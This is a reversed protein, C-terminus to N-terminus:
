KKVLNQLINEIILKYPMKIEDLKNIVDSADFKQMKLMIYGCYFIISVISISLIGIAFGSVIFSFDISDKVLQLHLQFSFIGISSQNWNNIMSHVAFLALLLFNIFILTGSLYKSWFPLFFRSFNNIEVKSEIENEPITQTFTQDEDHIHFEPSYASFILTILMGCSFIIVELIFYYDGYLEIAPRYNKLDQVWAFILFMQLLACIVNVRAYVLTRGFPSFSVVPTYFQSHCLHDHLNYFFTAIFFSGLPFLYLFITRQGSYLLFFFCTIFILTSLFFENDRFKQM